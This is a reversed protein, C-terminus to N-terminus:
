PKKPIPQATVLPVEQVPHKSALKVWFVWAAVQLAFALWILLWPRFGKKRGVNAPKRQEGTPNETTPLPTLAHKM